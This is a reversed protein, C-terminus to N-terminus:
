KEKKKTTASSSGKDDESKKEEEGGANGGNDDDDDDDEDDSSEAEKEQKTAASPVPRPKSSTQGFCFFLCGLILMGVTASVAIVNAAIFDKAEGLLYMVVGYPGDEDLARLREAKEKAKKVAEYHAKELAVKKAFTLEAVEKAAAEDHTLLINDFAIGRDNALIEFSVAGIPALNSPHPDEFYNPNAIKRPKWEGKYAPNPIIPASWKGKYEPNPIQPAMWEGDDEDDWDEPKKADPDPITKPADEDWDEPKKASPDPITAADVWDSPKSDSPDDIEKPAGFPPTFDNDSLLSGSAEEVQDVLVKFSNDPKIILTYLHSFSDATKASVLKTMHKEEWKGSPQKQRVIFHVKNTAGCRDPGFMVVYPTAEELSLPSWGEQKLLLKAYAGSCGIGEHLRVEYQFVLTNGTNDFPQSLVHTLGYHKHKVKVALSQENRFGPQHEDKDGKDGFSSAVIWEHGFYRENTSAVWGKELAKPGDQFTELFDIRKLLPQPLDPHLPREPLVVEAPVAAPKKHHKHDHDHHHDHDDDHHHHDHHDRHHDHDHHGHVHDDEEKSEIDDLAFVGSGRPSSALAAAAFALLLM